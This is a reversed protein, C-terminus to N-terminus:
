TTSLHQPYTDQLIYMCHMLGWIKYDVPTLDASKTPCLDSAIFDVTEQQLLQVMERANLSM